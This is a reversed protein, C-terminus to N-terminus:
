MTFIIMTFISKVDQKCASGFSVKVYNMSINGAM